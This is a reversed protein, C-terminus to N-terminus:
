AKPDGKHLYLPDYVYGPILCLEVTKLAFDRGVADDRQCRQRM